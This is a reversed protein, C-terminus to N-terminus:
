EGIEKLIGRIKDADAATPTLELYKSLAVAADKNNKLQILCYGLGKYAPALTPDKEIAKRFASEAQVYDKENWLSSGLNYYSSADQQGLAEQATVIEKVKTENKLDTYLVLLDNLIREDNPRIARMKELAEVAKAKEGKERYLVALNQLTEMQTPAVAIESEFHTIAADKNGADYDMKGLYFHAGKLDAKVALAKEFSTRAADLQNSDFQAVGLLYQPYGLDPHSQIVDELIPIAETPKGSHIRDEADLVKKQAKGLAESQAKEEFFSAPVMVVEYKYTHGVSFRNPPVVQDAGISYRGSEEVAGTPGHDEFRIAYILHGPVTVNLTYNGVEFLRKRFQGDKVPAEIPGLSEHVLAVQGDSIPKSDRDTLTGEVLMHELACGPVATFCFSACLLVFATLLNKM